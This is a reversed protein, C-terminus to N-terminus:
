PTWAPNSNQVPDAFGPADGVDRSCVRALPGVLDREMELSPLAGIAIEVLGAAADRLRQDGRPHVRAVADGV